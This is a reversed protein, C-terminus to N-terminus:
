RRTAPSPRQLALCMRGVGVIQWEWSCSLSQLSACLGERLFHNSRAPTRLLAVKYWSQVLIDLGHTVGRYCYVRRLSDVYITATGSTKCTEKSTALHGELM